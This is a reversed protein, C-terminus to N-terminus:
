IRAFYSIMAEGAISRINKESYGRRRLKDLLRPYDLPNDLHEPKSEIGDFDSGFGAKGEGGLLMMHDFHDVVTDLTCPSGGLFVPYFNLGVFGGASFLAKLQDDTLNRTHENLARCCSHSAMPAVPTKNLIDWFGAENLHSIDVAMGLRQMERVAEFGYPKLGDTANVRHPTALANEHNWTICAMRVGHDYYRAITSLSREFVECGEISLMAKVKGEEAEGPSFAQVWGQQKLAEFAALMKDFLTEVQELPAKPGVYMAMTQLSVGGKQLRELTIDNANEPKNVLNYLTDCHADCIIM